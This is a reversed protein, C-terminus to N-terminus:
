RFAKRFLMLNGPGHTAPEFGALGAERLNWNEKGALDQRKSPNPMNAGSFTAGYGSSCAREHPFRWPEVVDKEIFRLKNRLKDLFSYLTAPFPLGLLGFPVPEM